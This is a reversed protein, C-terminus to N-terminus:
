VKKYCILYLFHCGQNNIQAVFVGVKPLVSAGNSVILFAVPFILIPRFLIQSDGYIGSIPLKSRLMIQLIYLFRSNPSNSFVM